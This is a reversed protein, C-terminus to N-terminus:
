SLALLPLETPNLRPFFHQNPDRNNVEAELTKDTALMLAGGSGKGM